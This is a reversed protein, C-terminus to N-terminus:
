ALYSDGPRRPRVIRAPTGYAVVNAPLDRDLYANAGLISDAGIRCGQKVVAGICVAAGAGIHVAGGTVAGPALSAYDAMVGDHDLSSQSNLICFAGVRSGPGIQALAMVVTGAGVGAGDGIAAQRHILSAWDLRGFEDELDRRLRQRAANDGVAIFFRYDAIRDLARLSAIVPRGLHQQGGREGDVFCAVTLGASGAVNACATAHGRAGIVVLPRPDPDSM